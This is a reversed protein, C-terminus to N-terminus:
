KRKRLYLIAALSIFFMFPVFLFGAVSYFSRYRHDCVPVDFVLTEATHYSGNEVMDGTIDILATIGTNTSRIIPRRYEVAKIASLRLHQYPEVSGFWSDNSLNLFINADKYVMKRVYSSKLIEYCITPAFRLEVGDIPVDLTAPGAGRSFNGIESVVKNLSPFINALPVYEGFPLLKSKHYFEVRGEPTVVIASNYYRGEPFTNELYYGGIIFPIGTKKVLEKQQDMLPNGDIYYGPFATEPWVVFDIDHNGSLMKETMSEYKKYILISHPSDKKQDFEATLKLAQAVDLQWPNGINAQVVGAKFKPCTDQFKKVSNYDYYGYISLFLLVAAVISSYKIWHRSKYIFFLGVNIIIISFSLGEAGFVDAFQVLYEFSSLANGASWNFIRPDLVEATVFLTPIILFYFVNGTRDRLSKRAVYYLICFIQLYFNTFLAFAINVVDLTCWYLRGIEISIHHLMQINIKIQKIVALWSYIFLHLFKEK